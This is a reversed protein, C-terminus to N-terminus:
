GPIPANLDTLLGTAAALAAATLIPRATDRAEAEWREQDVARAADLAKTGIRHDADFGGTWHRPGRGAKPSPVRAAARSILRDLLTTLAAALTTELRDHAGTDGESVDEPRPHAKTEAAARLLPQARATRTRGGPLARLAVKKGSAGAPAASAAPAKP